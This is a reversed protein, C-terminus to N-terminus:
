IEYKRRKRSCTDAFIVAKDINIQNAATTQNSRPSVQTILDNQRDLENLLQETQAEFADDQSHKQCLGYITGTLGLGFLILFIM